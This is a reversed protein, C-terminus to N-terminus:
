GAALIPAKALSERARLLLSLIRQESPAGASAMRNLHLHVFSACLTDLPQSLTGQAALERLRAAVPVLAERRQALIAWIASGGPLGALFQQPEGLVPRLVNKRQRFEAGIEAARANTQGGYWRLRDAEEFGMAGLLDDIGLALLTLEDHPWLKRKLEHLLRACARSDASFLAEAAAM